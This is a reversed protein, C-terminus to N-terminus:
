SSFNKYAEFFDPDIDLIDSWLDSWYGRSATFEDKLAQRRADLTGMRTKRKTHKAQKPRRIGALPRHARRVTRRKAAITHPHARFSIGISLFRRKMKRLSRPFRACSKCPPGNQKRSSTRLSTDMSRARATVSRCRAMGAIPS